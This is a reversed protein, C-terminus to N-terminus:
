NFMPATKKINKVIEPIHFSSEQVQLGVEANEHGQSKAKNLEEEMHKSAAEASVTVNVLHWNKKPSSKIYICHIM